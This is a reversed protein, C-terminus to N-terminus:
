ISQCKLEKEKKNNIEELLLIHEREGELEEFDKGSEKKGKQVM